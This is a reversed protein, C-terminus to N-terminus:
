IEDEKGKYKGVINKLFRLFVTRRYVM